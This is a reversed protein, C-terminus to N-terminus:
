PAAGAPQAIWFSWRLKVELQGQAVSDRRASVQDLSANPLERLVSAIYRRLQPYSARVPQVVQFQLMRAAPHDQRQYDSQAVAIQEAEALAVLKRVLEPPSAGRLPAQAAVLTVPQTRVPAATVRLGHLRAVDARAAALSEQAPQVFTWHALVAVALLLSALPWAWGHRWLLIDLHVRNM